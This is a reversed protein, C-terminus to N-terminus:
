PPRRCLTPPNPLPTQPPPPRRRPSTIGPSVGPARLRLSATARDHGPAPPQAAPRPLPRAPVSASRINPRWATWNRRSPRSSRPPSSNNWSSTAAAASAAAKATGCCPGRTNSPSRASWARSPRALIGQPEIGAHSRDHGPLRLPKRDRVVVARVPGAQGQRLHRRNRELRRRLRQWRAHDGLGHHQLRPRRDPRRRCLRGEDHRRDVQSQVAARSLRARLADEAAVLGARDPDRVDSLFWEPERGTLEKIALSLSGGIYWDYKNSLPSRTRDSWSRLLVESGQIQRNYAEPAHKGWLGETYVYRSFGLYANMLDKRGNWQGSREVLYYYGTGGIEGPAVGFIRAQSLAEAQPPEIGQRQLEARVQVSNRHVMNDTEDLAAVLRVAKDLLRMRTPLMDRYYGGSAIFVDIRPRRLEAAPILEVDAVLNRADWVPRVGLLYLIQSEMVGYDAFTAFSNLTFAVKQPYRGKSKLQQALLQEVLMKGLEWSPRSPVEEPNMVYMNRGTPVVAPNREPSNGPGPPIFRGALAAVLNDIEQPTKAFGEQLRRARQFDDGLPKALGAAPVTGGAARLADEVPWGQFVIPRLVEEAKQRLFKERSGATRAAAPPPPIVEGLADLFHKGLCTVLWPVLLDPPPPQGFVHLSVTTTENHIAHLYAEVREIEEAAFLPRRGRDVHLDRDLHADEIQRTISARFKEKLAGRGPSGM